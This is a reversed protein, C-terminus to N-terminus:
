SQSALQHKRRYRAPSEGTENKFASYFRSTSGFGSAYGIDLISCESTLLLRQANAVRQKTLYTVISMGTYRRFLTSAHNTSLSVCDAIEEVRLPEHLHEAIFRVMERLRPAAVTSSDELQKAATETSQEFALALRILRGELELQVAHKRRPDGQNMDNAWRALMSSDEPTPEPDILLGRAMMDEVFSKGIRFRLFQDFPITVWTVVPSRDAALTRHPTAGWLLCLRDLPLDQVSGNFLYRMQGSHVFNIELSAHYHPERMGRSRGHWIRVETGSHM